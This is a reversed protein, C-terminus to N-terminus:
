RWSFMGWNMSSAMFGESAAQLNKKNKFEDLASLFLKNSEPNAKPNQYLFLRVKEGNFLDTSNLKIPKTEDVLVKGNSDVENDPVAPNGCSVLMSIVAFSYLVYKMPVSNLKSIYHIVFQLNVFQSNKSEGKNEFVM